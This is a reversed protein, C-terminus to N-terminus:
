PVLRGIASEILKLITRGSPVVIMQSPHFSWDLPVHLAGGEDEWPYECNDPRQGGRKVAPALVDIEKALHRARNLAERAKGGTFNVFSSEQRLVTPLHAAVYAHSTQMNAPNEGANCLYAKVLKECAMQLFLLTHCEEVSQNAELTQYMQFDAQAQRGYGLAWEASTAM